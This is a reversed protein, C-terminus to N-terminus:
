FMGQMTMIWLGLPIVVALVIWMFWDPDPKIVKATRDILVGDAYTKIEAIIEPKTM